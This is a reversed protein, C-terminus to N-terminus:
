SISESRSAPGERKQLANGLLRSLFPGEPVTAGQRSLPVAIEGIDHYLDWLRNALAQEEAWAILELADRADM